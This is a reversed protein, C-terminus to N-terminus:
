KSAIQNNIFFVIALPILAVLLFAALLKSGLSFGPYQRLFVIGLTSFVLIAVILIASQLAPIVLRDGPWFFDILICLLGTALGISNTRRFASGSLTLSSIAVIVLAVNIGITLGLGSVLLSIALVTISLM